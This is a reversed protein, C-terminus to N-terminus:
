AYSSSGWIIFKVPILCNMNLFKFYFLVNNLFFDMGKFGDRWRKISAHVIESLFHTSMDVPFIALLLSFSSNLSLFRHVDYFFIFLTLSFHSKQALSLSLCLCCLVAISAAAPCNCHRNFNNLFNKELKFIGFKILESMLDVWYSERAGRPWRNEIWFRVRLLFRLM